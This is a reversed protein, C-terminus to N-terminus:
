WHRRRGEAVWAKLLERNDKADVSRGVVDLIEYFGSMGHTDYTDQLTRCFAVGSGAWDFSVWVCFLNETVNRCKLIEAIGALSKNQNLEARVQEMLQRDVDIVNPFNDQAPAFDDNDQTYRDFRVTFTLM